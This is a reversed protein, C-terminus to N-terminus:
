PAPPPSPIRLSPGLLIANTLFRESSRVYGRFVPDDALLIFRGRGAPEVWVAASGSLRGRNAESVYGAIVDTYRAASKYPNAPPAFATAHDRFVPVEPNPFGYGLPHTPDIRTMLFAGAVKELDRRDSADVFSLVEAEQDQAADKPASGEAEPAKALQILKQRALWSIASATAIVTGGDRVYQQLAAVQKSDWNSYSGAPLIVCSYDSLKVGTLRTTEVLTTSQQMRTDLFHWLAGTSLVTTGPGVVLLPNAPALRTISDSGLDPGDATRSSPLPQAVLADQEAARQLVQLVRQWRKANPQRLILYSGAPWQQSADEDQVSIPRPTVRVDAEAALLRAVLRPAAWHVPDIIYGTVQAQSTFAAQNDVKEDPAATTVRHALWSKPPAGSLPHMTLDLASPLHWTSVDYFLNERFEQPTEMLSRIFTYEAQAAPIVLVRDAAHQQDGLTIAAEPRYARIAHRHLLEGAARIREPPGTLVFTKHEAAKGAQLAAAYFDHQYALLEERYRDAARLSSLSTRVQNAITDRFHRQTRDNTLRLARTSGQEFLIGVSGHLDPYTSGKGVYFDDFREETFFLENAQDMDVTHEAAFARTLRLNEAPSLPNNRAPVGPQFFYSSNGGMEHFDLNVNPKWQHFLRLRGRSEPHVLPLWDRNLDFWYYNTRGGPWPQNHERDIASDSALRGRNDNVWNAFRDLGDPNMVPDVLYVTQELWAVVDESESSALHYAVVPAANAASAEDGHINYGMYMVVPTDEPVQKLKGSTLQRRSQQVEDLREIQNPSSIAAVLLPRRGQTHGYPILQVRPSADALHHFYAVIQDHRLHRSGIPFGFFQEPSQVEELRPHEPLLAVPEAAAADGPVLALPAALLILLAVALPATRTTVRRRDREFRCNKMPISDKWPHVRYGFLAWLSVTYNARGM